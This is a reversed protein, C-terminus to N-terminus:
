TAEKTGNNEQKRLHLDLVALACWAAHALHTIGSEQDAEDGAQHSLLHRLLADTYRREADDVKLWNDDAYKAAGFTGVKGVELIARAMTCVVLGVRNKGSDAKYGAHKLVDEPDLSM